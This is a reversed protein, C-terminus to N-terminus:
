AVGGDMIQMFALGTEHGGFKNMAYRETESRMSARGREGMLRFAGAILAELDLYSVLIGSLEHGIVEANGGVDFSVMPVGCLNAELLAMGFNEVLTPSVGFSCAKVIALNTEYGVQGPAHVKANSPVFRLEYALEQGISGSLYFGIDKPTRQALRRIIEFMFRSGKYANGASPIYILVADQPLGLESRLDHAPINAILETDVLNPVVTVLGPYQYTKRFMDRMYESPCVVADVHRLVLNEFLIAIRSDRESHLKWLPNGLFRTPNHHSVLITRCGPPRGIMLGPCGHDSLVMVEPRFARIRSRLRACPWAFSLIESVHYALTGPEVIRFYLRTVLDISREFWKPVGLRTVDKEVLSVGHDNFTFIKADYGNRKLVRYLNYQASSM